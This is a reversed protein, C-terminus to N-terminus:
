RRKARKAKGEKALLKLAVKLDDDELRKDDEVPKLRHLLLGRDEKDALALYELVDGYEYSDELFTKNAYKNLLESSDDGANLFNSTAQIVLERTKEVGFKNYFKYM